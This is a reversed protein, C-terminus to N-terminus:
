ANAPMLEVPMIIQRNATIRQLGIKLDVIFVDDEDTVKIFHQQPYILELRKQVNQLGIGTGVKRINYDRAKGNVLKMNMWDDEISITMNIWSQEVMNSAGHKFCNEVLPLLILPTIYLDDTNNPIDMHVDLRAGYRVQELMIYDRLMNLEKALPVLPKDGEYLMYRLMDSLGAVMKAAVPSSTQTFSYINNLTNFLFHPHVQAKLLQLQIQAKEKQLQLNSQEKVYWYKMLKIAAALGGITIGGRLGALLSYSFDRSAFRKPLSQQFFPHLIFNRVGEVYPSVFANLVGTAIFLAIVAVFSSLYRGKILLHPVVFYVLNYTLFM